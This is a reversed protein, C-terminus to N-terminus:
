TASRDQSGHIVVPELYECECGFFMGVALVLRWAVGVVVVVLAMMAGRVVIKVRELKLGVRVAVKLLMQVGRELGWARWLCSGQALLM